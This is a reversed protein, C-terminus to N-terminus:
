RGIYSIIGVQRAYVEASWEGHSVVQGHESSGPMWQQAQRGEPLPM